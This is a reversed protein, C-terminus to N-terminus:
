MTFTVSFTISRPRLDYSYSYMDVGSYVTYYYTRTDLLNDARLTYKYRKHRYSIGADFLAIDKHTNDSLEKSIFEVGGFVDLGRFPYVSLKVDNSFMDYSESSGLYRSFTKSFRGSYNLEVFTWPALTIRPGFSFSLGDYPILENQQVVENRSWTYNGYLTFKGGISHVQKTVSSNTSLSKSYSDAALGGVTVDSDTVYQSSLINRKSETYSIYANAFWFEFPRKFDFRVNSSFTRGEALIGSSATRNRYSTMVPATMLDLVDGVSHSLSSNFVVNFDSSIVYRLRFNPQIYPNKANIRHNAAYNRANLLIMRLALGGELELRRAPSSYQFSPSFSFQFTNGIVNNIDYTGSLVSKLHDNRYQAELPVSLMFRSFKYSSGASFKVNFSHSDLAQLVTPKDSMKDTIRLDAEPARNFGVDASMNWINDGKKFRWSFCNDLSVSKVNSQQRLDRDDSRTLFNDEQFGATANFDNYVYKRDANKTYNISLSPKHLSNLPTNHENFVIEKDGAYYLSNQNYNYDTASYNYSTNLKFTEDTGTKKMFNLSVSRDRPSIYRSRQLPASSGGLSGAARKALSKNDWGGYTRVILDSDYGKSFEKVNGIKASVITQFAPTFCMGTAGVQYLWKDDYGGMVESTGVPKFKVRSKLKVNLAVQNSYTGKDIRANHHRDMIQVDTVYEAPLNRTALNYKGGLMDMGEIYFNSIGRGQYNIKGSKEVNIGPLKKLGDELTVDSKGLYSALNYTLTDGLQNIKPAEVKVERLAVNDTTLQFDVTADRNPVMRETKSYGICQVTIKLSDNVLKPIRLSYSGDSKVTGFSKLKGAAYVRVVAGSLVGGDTRDCVSGTISVQAVASLSLSLVGSILLFILRIM